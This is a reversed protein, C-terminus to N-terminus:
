SQVNNSEIIRPASLRVFVNYRLYYVSCVDVCYSGVLAGYLIFRLWKM